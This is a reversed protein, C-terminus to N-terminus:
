LTLHKWKTNLWDEYMKAVSSDTEIQNALWAQASHSVQRSDSQSLNRDQVCFMAYSPTEDITRHGGFQDTSISSFKGTVSISSILHDEVGKSKKFIRSSCFSTRRYRIGM